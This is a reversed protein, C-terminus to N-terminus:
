SGESEEEVAELRQRQREYWEAVKDGKGKSQLRRLQAIEKKSVGAVELMKSDARRRDRLDKKAWKEVAASDEDDLKEAEVQADEEAPSLDMAEQEAEEEDHKKM